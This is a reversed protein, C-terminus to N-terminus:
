GEHLGFDCDWRVSRTLELLERPATFVRTIFFDCDWRVSRTLELLGLKVKVAHRLLGRRLGVTGIQDTGVTAKAVEEAPAM